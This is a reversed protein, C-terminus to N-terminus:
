FATMIELNSNHASFEKIIGDNDLFHDAGKAEVYGARISGVMGTTKFISKARFSKKPDKDDSVIM